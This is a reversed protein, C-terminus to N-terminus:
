WASCGVCYKKRLSDRLPPLFFLLALRVSACTCSREIHKLSAIATTEVPLLQMFDLVLSRCGLNSISYIALAMLGSLSAYGVPLSVAPACSSLISSM